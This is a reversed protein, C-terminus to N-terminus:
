AAKPKAGAIPTKFLVVFPEKEVTNSAAPKRIIEIPTGEKPKIKISGDNKLISPNQFEEDMVPQTEEEITFDADQDTAQKILDRFTKFSALSYQYYDLFDAQTFGSGEDTLRLTLDIDKRPLPKNISGGVAKLTGEKGGEALVKTFAAVLKQLNQRDIDTLREFYSQKDVEPTSKADAAAKEMQDPNQM